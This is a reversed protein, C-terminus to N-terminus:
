TRDDEIEFSLFLRNVKNNDKTSLTVISVYQKTGTIQFIENVPDDIRYVVPDNEYNSDRTSKSTFLLKLVMNFRSIKCNILSM